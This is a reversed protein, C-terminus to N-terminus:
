QTTSVLRELSTHMEDCPYQREDSLRQLEDALCHNSLTPIPSNMGKYGPWLMGQTDTTLKDLRIIYRYLSYINFHTHLLTRCNNDPM